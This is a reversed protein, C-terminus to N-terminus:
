SFLLSFFGFLLVYGLVSGWFSNNEDECALCDNKGKYNHKKCAM